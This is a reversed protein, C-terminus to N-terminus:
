KVEVKFFENDSTSYHSKREHGYESFRQYFVKRLELCDFIVKYQMFFEKLDNSNLFENNIIKDHLLPKTRLVIKDITQFMPMAFIEVNKKTYVSNVLLGDDQTETNVGEVYCVTSYVLNVELYKVLIKKFNGLSIFKIHFRLAQEMVDIKREITDNLLSLVQFIFFLPFNKPDLEPKIILYAHEKNTIVGLKKTTQISRDYAVEAKYSHNNLFVINILELYHETTYWKVTDVDLISISIIKKFKKDFLDFTLHNTEITNIISRIRNETENDTIEIDKLECCGM